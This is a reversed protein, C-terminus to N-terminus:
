RYAIETMRDADAPSGGTEKSVYEIETLPRTLEPIAHTREIVMLPGEDIAIPTFPIWANLMATDKPSTAFFTFYSAHTCM